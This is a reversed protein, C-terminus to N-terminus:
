TAQGHDEHFRYFKGKDRKGVTDPNLKKPWKVQEGNKHIWMPVRSRPEYLTTYNHFRARSREENINELYTEDSSYNKKNQRKENNQGSKSEERMAQQKDKLKIYKQARQMLQYYDVVLNKILSYLFKVNKTGKKLAECTTEHNLNEIQIAETNFHTIYDRLSEGEYQEIKMHSRSNTTGDYKDLVPFKFKSLFHEALIPGSLSSKDGM